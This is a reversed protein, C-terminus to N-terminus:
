LYFLLRYDYGVREPNIQAEMSDFVPHELRVPKRFEQIISVPTPFSRLSCVAVGVGNMQQSMMELVVSRAGWATEHFGSAKISLSREKKSAEALDMWSTLRKGRSLRVM